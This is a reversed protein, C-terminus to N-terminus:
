GTEPPVTKTWTFLLSIKVSCSSFPLFIMEKRGLLRMPKWAWARSIALALKDTYVSGAPTLPPRSTPKSSLKIISPVKRGLVEECRCLRVDNCGHQLVARKIRAKDGGWPQVTRALPARHTQGLNVVVEKM